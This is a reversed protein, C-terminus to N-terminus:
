FIRCSDHTPVCNYPCQNPTPTPTPTPQITGLKFAALYYSVMRSSDVLSADGGARNLNGSPFHRCNRYRNSGVWQLM